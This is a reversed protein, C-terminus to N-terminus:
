VSTLGFLLFAQEGDAAGLKARMKDGAANDTMDIALAVNPDDLLAAAQAIALHLEPSADAPVAGDLAARQVWTGLKSPNVGDPVAVERVHTIGLPLPQLTRDFAGEATAGVGFTTFAKKTM